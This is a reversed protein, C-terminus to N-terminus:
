SLEGKPRLGLKQKNAALTPWFFLVGKRSTDPTRGGGKKADLLTHPSFPPGSFDPVPSNLETIEGGKNADLLTRPSVAGLPGLLTGLSAWSLGM